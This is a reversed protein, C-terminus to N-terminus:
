EVAEVNKTVIVDSGLGLVDKIAIDGIRVPAQLRLKRIEAMVDFIREKPVPRDLRVSVLPLEGGLLLASSAITRKPETIEQRVYEAGRKCLNGQVSLIKGKEYEVTIECGNPCIICTFERVM